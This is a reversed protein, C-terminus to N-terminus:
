LNMRVTDLSSQPPAVEDEERYISGTPTFFVYSPGTRKSNQPPCPDYGVIVGNQPKVHPNMKDIYSVETGIAHELIM